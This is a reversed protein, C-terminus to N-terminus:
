HMQGYPLTFSEINLDHYSHFCLLMMQHRKKRQLPIGDNVFYFLNKQVAKLLWIPQKRLVQM